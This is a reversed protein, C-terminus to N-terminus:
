RHYTAYERCHIYCRILLLPLIPQDAIGKCEPHSFCSTDKGFSTYFSTINDSYSNQFYDDGNIGTKMAFGLSLFLILIASFIFYKKFTQDKSGNEKFSTIQDLLRSFSSNKALNVDLPKRHKKKKERKSM